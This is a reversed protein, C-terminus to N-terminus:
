PLINNNEMNNNKEVPKNLGFYEEFVAKAIKGASGGGSYGYEVVGAFAIQPDDVPAFAVFVGDFDGKEYGAKGPQATGTKAAVQIDPPFRSFLFYATGGPQTTKLMAKKTEEITQSSIDVIKAIEPKYEKVVEGKHNIIKETIYPKMRVGNNAITAVYGALQLPTYNQRGQGIAINYTDVEHWATNWNLDIKWQAEIKALANKKQKELSEKEEKTIAQTILENYRNKENELKREYNKNTLEKSWEFYDKRKELDPLGQLPSTGPNEYPLDIGTPQNLGIEQGIKAYKDIGVRRGMEQFYVNCSKGIADYYDIPGHVRTCKIYPKKWYRGSCRVKEKPDIGEELAAMGTIMKITSGPIYRGQIAKNQVRIKDNPRTVMALVKGTKVDLLVAAGGDAKKTRSSSQLEALVQDFSDEMVKQLQFNLTLVVDNGPQPPITTIEKIPRNKANVEVQRFGDKGRIFKDYQKEIGIKGLIDGLKYEEYGEKGLEDKSIEGLYGLVHGALDGYLYTRQPAPEIMIGPLDKRHSELKSVTEISINRKIVIPEYLRYVREKIKEKIAEETLEPDDLIEVLTKISQEDQTFKTNYTLSVQFSPYDTALVVEDSSVINGRSAPITVLRMRNEEARTQYTETQIIQLWVLRLGLICFIGIIIYGYIILAQNLKKRRRGNM